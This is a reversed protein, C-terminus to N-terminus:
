TGRRKFDRNHKAFFILKSHHNKTHIQNCYIQSNAIFVLDIIITVDVRMLNENFSLFIRLYIKIIIPTPLYPLLTSYGTMAKGVYHWRFDRSIQVQEGKLHCV